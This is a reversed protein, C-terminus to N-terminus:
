QSLNLQSQVISKPKFEAHLASFAMPTAQSALIHVLLLCICASLADEITYRNSARRTAIAFTFNQIIHPTISLLRQTNDLTNAM